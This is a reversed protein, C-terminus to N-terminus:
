RIDRYPNCDPVCAFSAVFFIAGFVYLLIMGVCPGTSTYDPQNFRIPAACDVTDNSEGVCRVM